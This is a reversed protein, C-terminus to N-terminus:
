YTIKMPGRFDSVASILHKVTLLCRKQIGQVLILAFSSLDGTKLLWKKDKGQTVRLAPKVTNIM